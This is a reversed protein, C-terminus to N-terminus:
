ICPAHMGPLISIKRQNRQKIRPAENPVTKGRVQRPTPFTQTLLRSKRHHQHLWSLLQTYMCNTNPSADIKPLQESDSRCSQMSWPSIKCVHEQMKQAVFITLSDLDTIRFIKSTSKKIKQCCTMKRAVSAMRDFAVVTECLEQSGQQWLWDCYAVNDLFKTGVTSCRRVKSDDIWCWSTQRAAKNNVTIQNWVM